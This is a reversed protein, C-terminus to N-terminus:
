GDVTWKANALICMYLASIWKASGGAALGMGGRVIMMELRLDMSMTFSGKCWGSVRWRILRFRATCNGNLLTMLCCLLAGERMRM